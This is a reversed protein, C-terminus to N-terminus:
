KKGGYPNYHRDKALPSCDREHVEVDGDFDYSEYWDSLEESSDKDSIVFKRTAGGRTSEIYVVRSGDRQEYIDIKGWYEPRLNANFIQAAVDAGLNRSRLWEPADVAYWKEVARREENNALNDILKALAEKPPRVGKPPHVYAASRATAHGRAANLSVGSAYSKATIGKGALRKQYTPTLQEWGKRAAM